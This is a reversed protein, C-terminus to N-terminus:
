GNGSSESTKERADIRDVLWHNEKKVLHYTNEYRLSEEGSISKRSSSDVYHFKWLERTKVTSRNGDNSVNIELFEIDTLESVLIKKDKELYVIYSGIRSREPSTAFYEMISPDPKALAEALMKNYAIVTNKLEVSESSCSLLLFVAAILWYLGCFRSSPREVRSKM